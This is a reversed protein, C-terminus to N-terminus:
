ASDLTQKLTKLQPTQHQRTSFRLSRSQPRENLCQGLFLAEFPVCHDALIGTTLMGRVKLFEQGARYRVGLTAVSM